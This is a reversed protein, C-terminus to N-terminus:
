DELDGFGDGDEDDDELLIKKMKYLKLLEKVKGEPDSALDHFLIPHKKLEEFLKLEEPTLNFEQGAVTVSKKPQPNDTLGLLYDTSVEYFDAFKAILDPDPNSQGSEYRSLQFNTLGFAAAVKKQTFGSKERLKKLRMGLINNNNKM